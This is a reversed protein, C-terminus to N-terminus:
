EKIINKNEEEIFQIRDIEAALLAAATILREKYPKGHM